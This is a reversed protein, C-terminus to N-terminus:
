LCHLVVPPMHLPSHSYIHMWSLNAGLVPNRCLTHIAISVTRAVHLVRLAERLCARGRESVCVQTFLYLCLPLLGGQWLVVLLAPGWGVVFMNLLRAIFNDQECYWDWRLPSRCCCHACIRISPHCRKSV